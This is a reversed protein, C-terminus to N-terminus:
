GINSLTHVWRLFYLPISYIPFISQDSYQGGFHFQLLSSVWFYCTCFKLLLSPRLFPSLLTLNALLLSCPFGQLLGRSSHQPSLWFIEPSCPHSVTVRGPDWRWLEDRGDVGPDGRVGLPMLWTWCRGQGLDREMKGSFEVPCHQLEREGARAWGQFRQNKNIKLLCLARWLFSLVSPIFPSRSSPTPSSLRLPLLSTFAIVYFSCQLLSTGSLVSVVKKFISECDDM